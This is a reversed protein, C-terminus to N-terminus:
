IAMVKVLQGHGVPVGKQLIVTDVQQQRLQKGKTRREAQQSNELKEVESKQQKNLTEIEVSYKRLMDQLLSSLCILSM